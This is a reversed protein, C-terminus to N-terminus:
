SFITVFLSALKLKKTGSRLADLRIRVLLRLGGLHAQSSTSRFFRKLSFFVKIPFFVGEYKVFSCHTIQDISGALLHSNSNQKHLSDAIAVTALNYCYNVIEKM